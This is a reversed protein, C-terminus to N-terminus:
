ISSRWKVRRLELSIGLCAKESYIYRFWAAMINFKSGCCTCMTYTCIKCQGITNLHAPWSLQNAFNYSAFTSNPNELVVGISSFWAVEGARYCSSTAPPPNCQTQNDSCSHTLRLDLQCTDQLPGGALNSHVCGGGFDCSWSWTERYTEALCVKNKLKSVVWSRRRTITFVPHASYAAPRVQWQVIRWCFTYNQVIPTYRGGAWYTVSSIKTQEQLRLLENFGLLALLMSQSFADTCPWEM